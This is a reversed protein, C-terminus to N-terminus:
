KLTRFCHVMESHDGDLRSQPRYFPGFHAWVGPRIESVPPGIPVLCQSIIACDDSCFLNIELNGKSNIIRDKVENTTNPCSRLRHRRDGCGWCEVPESSINRWENGRANANRATNASTAISASEKALCNQLEAVQKRLAKITRESSENETIERTKNAITEKKETRLREVDKTWVELQLAIRFASDLTKPSRERVKLAFDPDALANIFYDCAISEHASHNLNSFALTTLRRFDSHM